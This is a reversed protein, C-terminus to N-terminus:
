VVSTSANYLNNAYNFLPLFENPENTQSAEAQVIQEQLAQLQAANAAADASLEQEVSTAYSTIADAYKITEDELERNPSYIGWAMFIAATCGAIILTAVWGMFFKLLLRINLGKGGELAGVGIVAGTLTQTTSLPLAYRSGLITIIAASLEMCFGRSCTIRTVKVGLARIIKFGYTALGIVIGVGGIIYIWVPIEAENEVARKTYTTYIAAYPGIANAVDNSGHAFAMTAATFVQLYKFSQETSPAFKEAVDHIDGIREDSGIVTHVDKTAGHTLAKLYKSYWMPTADSKEAQRAGGGLWSPLIGAHGGTEMEQLKQLRMAKEDKNLTDDKMTSVVEEKFAEDKRVRKAIWPMCAATILAMGGGVAASCYAKQSDPAADLDFAAGGKDMIFWVIMFFTGFMLPPLVFFSRFTSNPARLVFTRLVLFLICSLIGACLPAFVWGLVIYAVGNLGLGTDVKEGWNVESPGRSVITIGIIAGVISHTTSVPLELFTALALWLGTALLACLMGYMLLGPHDEFASSSTIGGRITGTVAAGMLVAGLFEMVGAIVVAQPLTIAKSGVSTGFANAVDNAGIGWAVFFAALAGVVVIWTYQDYYDAM